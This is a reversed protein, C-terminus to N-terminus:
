TESSKPYGPCEAFMLVNQHMQSFGFAVFTGESPQLHCIEQPTVKTNKYLSVIMKGLGCTSDGRGSKSFSIMYAKKPQSQSNAALLGILSLRQIVEKNTWGDKLWTVKPSTHHPWISLFQFSNCSPLETVYPPYLIHGLAVWPWRPTRQPLIKTTAEM